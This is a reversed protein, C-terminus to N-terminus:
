ETKIARVPDIRVVRRAPLWGALLTAVLIVAGVGVMSLPDLPAIGYLVNALGFSVLAGLVLGLALAWSVQRVTGAMLMRVLDEPRAGLTTRVGIEQTRQQVSFAILGYLGIGSLLLAILAFVTVLGAMMDAGLRATALYTDMPTLEAVPLAPDVETFALRIREVLSPELGTTRIVYFHATRMQARLSFYIYPRPAEGLSFYKGTPVVGVVPFTTTGRRVTRGIPDQGPWYLDAFAQNVIVPPDGALGDTPAFDRGQVVEIGLTPLYGEDIYNYMTGPLDEESGQWDDPIVTTISITPQLQPNYGTGVSVVGPLTGLRELVQEHYVRAADTDYGQLELFVWATLVDEADLGVDIERANHLSRLVMGSAVLLGCTIAVQLGVLLRRTLRTRRGPTVRGTTLSVVLDQRSAELAPTLGFLGGASLAAVIVILIAGPGVRFGFEIPMDIPPVVGDLLPVTLLTLVLGFAGALLALLMSETLVQRLIRGREAGLSLRIGMERRRVVSRAVLLGAVNACTLLLLLGVMVGVLVMLDRFQGRVLPHLRSASETVVRASVDENTEPYLEGLRAQLAVIESRAQEFRVGPRMRGILYFLFHHDREELADNDAPLAVRHMAMPVYLDTRNAVMMGKYDRDVVGIITFPHGNLVVPRGIVGPDRGYRSQWLQYSILLVPHRGPVEDEEPLFDRGAEVGCVFRSM